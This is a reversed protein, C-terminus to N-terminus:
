LGETVVEIASVEECTKGVLEDGARSGIRSREVWSGEYAGELCRYLGKLTELTVQLLIL